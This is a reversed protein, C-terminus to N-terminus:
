ASRAAPAPRPAPRPRPRPRRGGRAPPAASAQDRTTGAAPRRRRHDRGRGSRSASRRSTGRCWPGAARRADAEVGVGVPRGGAARGQDHEPQEAEEVHQRRDVAGEAPHVGVLEGGGAPRVCQHELQGPQHDAARQAVREGPQDGGAGERREQGRRRPQRDGDGPHEALVHDDGRPPSPERPTAAKRTPATTATMTGTSTARRQGVDTDGAATPRASRPRRRWRRGRSTSPMQHRRSVSTPRRRRGPRRGADARPAGDTHAMLERRRTAPRDSSACGAGQDTGSAKAVITTTLRSVGRRTGAWM